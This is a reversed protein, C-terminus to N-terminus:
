GVGTLYLTKEPEVIQFGSTNKSILGRNQLEKISDYVSTKSIGLRKILDEATCSANDKTSAKIHHFVKEITKTVTKTTTLEIKDNDVDEMEDVISLFGQTAFLEKSNLQYTFNAQTDNRGGLSKFTRYNKERKHHDILYIQNLPRMLTSNGSVLELKNNPNDKSQKKTHHLIVITVKNQATWNALNCMIPYVIECDSQKTLDYGSFLSSFSDIILLGIQCNKSKYKNIRETLQKFDDDVVLNRTFKVTFENSKTLGLDKLKLQTDINQEDANYYLINTQKCQFKGFLKTGQLIHKVVDTALTSKGGKPYSAIMGLKDEEFVDDVLYNVKINDVDSMFDELDIDLEDLNTLVSEQKNQHLIVQRALDEVDKITKILYKKSIEKDQIILLGIERRELVDTEKNFQELLNQLKNKNNKNLYDKLEEKDIQKDLNNKNWNNFTEHLKSVTAEDKNQLKQEYLHIFDPNETLFLKINEILMSKELGLYQNLPKNLFANIYILGNNNIEKKLENAKDLMALKSLDTGNDLPKIFSEFLWTLGHKAQNIKENIIELAKLSGLKVFLDNVDKVNPIKEIVLPNIGRNLLEIVNRKTGNLGGIDNDPILIIKKIKLKQLLALQDNSLSAGVPAIANNINNAQLIAADNVGECVILFDFDNTLARDLYLPSNKSGDGPLAITKNKIDEPLQKSPYRFYLTLPNGKEDKWPYTLYNNYQPSCVKVAKIDDEKFEKSKLHKWLKLSDSYYGIQLDKIQEDTFSRNRQYDLAKDAEPSDSWLQEICFDYTVELIEQRTKDQLYQYKEQPSYYNNNTEIKIGALNALEIVTDKFKISPCQIWKKFGINASALYDLIDGNFQCGACHFRKDPFITFSSKSNSTHVPCDGKLKGDKEERFQHDYKNYLDKASIKEISQKKIESLDM